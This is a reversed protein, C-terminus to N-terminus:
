KKGKKEGQKREEKRGKKNMNPKQQEWLLGDNNYAFSAWRKKLLM